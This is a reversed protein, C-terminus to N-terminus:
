VANIFTASADDAVSTVQVTFGHPAIIEAHSHSYALRVGDIVRALPLLSASCGAIQRCHRALSFPHRSSRVFLRARVGRHRRVRRSDFTECVREQDTEGSREHLARLDHGATRPRSLGRRRQRREDCRWFVAAAASLVFPSSRGAIRLRDPEKREARVRDLTTMMRGSM